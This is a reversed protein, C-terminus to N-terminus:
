LIDGKTRLYNNIALLGLDYVYDKFGLIVGISNTSFISEAHWGGRAFINSMHVEVYPLGFSSLTELISYGTKSYSAPNIVTGQLKSANKQLYDVIEGEYNSQFFDVAIKLNDALEFLRKEIAGLSIRGYIQPERKGLLNMNPGNIIAITKLNAKM